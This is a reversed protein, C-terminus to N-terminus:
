ISRAREWMWLCISTAADRHLNGTRTSKLWLSLSRRWKEAPSKGQRGSGGSHVRALAAEAGQLTIRGKTSGLNWGAVTINRYLERLELNDWPVAPLGVNVSWDLRFSRFVSSYQPHGFLWSRIYRTVLGLFVTAEAQSVRSAGSLLGMKLNSHLKGDRATGLVCSGDPRETFVGPLLGPSCSPVATNWQIVFTQNRIQVCAKTFATGFDLGLTCQAPVRKESEKFMIAVGADQWTQDTSAAAESHRITYNAMNPPNFEPAARGKPATPVAPAASTKSVPPRLAVRGTLPNHFPLALSHGRRKKSSAPPRPHPTGPKRPLVPPAPGTAPDLARAVAAGGSTVSTPYGPAVPVRPRESREAVPETSQVIAPAPPEQAKAKPERRLEKAFESLDLKWKEV